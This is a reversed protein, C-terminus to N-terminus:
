AKTTTSAAAYMGAAGAYTVKINGPPLGTAKAVGKADTKATVKKSGSAFTIVQGAVPKKDDDTLTATVAGKGGAAKLATKEVAVTFDVAVKADDSTIVLSRKGAKEKVLLAAKAVGDPGTTGSVTSTGLTFTVAKGAVPAGAADVLKAAVPAIDGYQAKVAGVSTLPSAAPAAAGFCHNDGVAWTVKSTDPTTAGDPIADAPQAVAYADGYAGGYVSTLSAGAAPAKGYKELDAIPLIATVTSTKADFVYKLGSEVFGPGNGTVREPDTASSVGDVALQTVHAVQGTQALGDKLQASGDNKFASGAATFTHKNFTFNVYFRHGDHFQPGDALKDVKLYAYLNKADSGLTMNTLDLDADNPVNGNLVHADGKPDKALFCDANPLKSPDGGGAAPAPAPAPEVSPAPTPLTATPVSAGGGGCATGVAYTLDKPAAADDWPEAVAINDGSSQAALTSFSAGATPTKTAKDIDELPLTFVVKSAKEDYTVKMTTAAATGDVDMGTQDYFNSLGDGIDTPNYRYAYLEIAKGGHKFTVSFSDGFSYEPAINLEAVYVSVALKNDVTDFAVGTIDLDDEGAPLMPADAPASDGKADTFTTCPADAASAAVLGAGILSSALVAGVVARRPLSTSSV